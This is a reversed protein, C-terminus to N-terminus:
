LEIRQLSFNIENHCSWCRFGEAIRFMRPMDKCGNRCCYPRYDADKPLGLAANMETVQEDTMRPVPLIEELKLYMRETLEFRAQLQLFLPSNEIESM